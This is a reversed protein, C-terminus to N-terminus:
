KRNERRPFLKNKSKKVRRLELVSLKWCDKSIILDLNIEKLDRNVNLDKFIASM